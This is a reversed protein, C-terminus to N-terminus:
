VEDYIFMDLMTQKTAKRKLDMEKSAEKLRQIDLWETHRKRQERVLSANAVAKYRGSKLAAIFGVTTEFTEEFETFCVGVYHAMHADSGGTAPLRLKKATKEAQTNLQRSQVAVQGNRTEVATIYDLSKIQDGLKRKYGKYPHAPVCVGGANVVKNIVDQMEPYYGLDLEDVDCGYILLHGQNTTYECGFFVKLGAARCERAVALGEPTYTHHHDTICIADLGAELAQAAIARPTGLGDSGRTHIHLDIKM